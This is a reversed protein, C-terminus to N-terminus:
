QKLRWDEWSMKVGVCMENLRSVIAEATEINNKITLRTILRDIDYNTTVVIPLLNEYRNNVITYLKELTWENPREKGLDDIVLLDVTSYLDILSTETEKLDGDYTEKIKGLLKIMTNMIVPIGRNILNITIAAALHTKGTGKTGSMMLGLGKEKYKEFKEAYKKAFEFAKRNEPTMKWTEFTRAMFRKGLQSMDFLKQVREQFQARRAAELEEAERRRREEEIVLRRKVAKSCTCEEWGTWEIIEARMLARRGVPSLTRGCFECQKERPPEKYFAFGLNKAQDAYINIVPLDTIESITLPRATSDNQLIM